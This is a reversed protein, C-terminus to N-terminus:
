DVDLDNQRMRNMIRNATVGARRRIDQLTPSDEAPPTNLIRLRRRDTATLRLYEEIFPVAVDQRERSNLIWQIGRRHVQLAANLETWEADIDLMFWGYRDARLEQVLETRQHRAREISMKVIGYYMVALFGAVLLVLPSAGAITMGIALMCAAILIRQPWGGTWPKYYNTRRKVLETLRRLEKVAGVTTANHPSYWINLVVDAGAGPTDLRADHDSRKM